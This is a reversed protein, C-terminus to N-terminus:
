ESGATVMRRRWVTVEKEDAKLWGDCVCADDVTVACVLNTEGHERTTVFVQSIRLLVRRRRQKSKCLAGGAHRESRKSEERM